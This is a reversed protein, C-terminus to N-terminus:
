MVDAFARETKRFYAVGIALLTASIAVSLVLGPWYIASEGGLLCWRFGDIVGVMPNLSYWLRWAEPVVSSSFGVPSIYLGIQVIFPVLFRFDRYKVNLAALLLAPGASAAVGLVIFLPLLIIQWGPAYGFWLYLAALIVMSVAFDVLAVIAASAPIILRPFYVKGILHSNGVLIYSSYCLIISCLFWPLTGAFVLLPYPVGAVSPLKALQGFVVTFVVMTILPRIIAWAFGIATQKYRVSVDRWALIAFLERYTWLDRWYNTDTRGAELIIVRASEAAAGPASRGPGSVDAASTSSAASM